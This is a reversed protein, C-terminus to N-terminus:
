INCFDFIDYDLKGISQAAIKKCEKIKRNLKKFTNIKAVELFCEFHYLQFAYEDGEDYFINVEFEDNVNVIAVHVRDINKTKFINLNTDEYIELTENCLDSLFGGLIADMDENGNIIELHFIKDNDKVPRLPVEIFKYEENNHLITEIILLGEPLRMIIDIMEKATYEKNGDVDIYSSGLKM